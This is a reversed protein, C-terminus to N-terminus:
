LLSALYEFHDVGDFIWYKEELPIKEYFSEYRGTWLLPVYEEFRTSESYVSYLEKNDFNIFLRPFLLCDDDWDKLPLNEKLLSKLLTGNVKQIFLRSNGQSNIRKLFEDITSNDLIAIDFREQYNHEKIDFDNFFKDYNMIWCEKESLFWYFSGRLLVLTIIFGESEIKIKNIM